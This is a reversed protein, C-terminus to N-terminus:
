RHDVLSVEHFGAADREMHVHPGGYCCRCPCKESCLGNTNACYGREESRNNYGGCKCGSACSCSCNSPVYGITKSSVNYIGNAVPTNVHAYCVSGAWYVGGTNLYFDVKLKADHPTPVESRYCVGSATYTTKISKINSSAKFVIAAGSSCSIDYPQTLCVSPHAGGSCYGSPRGVITGSTPCYVYIFETAM